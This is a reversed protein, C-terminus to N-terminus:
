LIGLLMNVLSFATPIVASFIIIKGGLEVKSAIAGQGADRCLESSFMTIYAIGTIKIVTQFYSFDIGSGSFADSLAYIAGSIDNKILMFIVSITILSVGLAFEPRSEKLLVAFVAGTLGIVAIKLINM